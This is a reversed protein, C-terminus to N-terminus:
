SILEPESFLCQPRNAARPDYLLQSYHPLCLPQLDSGIPQISKAPVTYYRYLM